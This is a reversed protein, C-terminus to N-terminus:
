TPQTKWRRHLWFWQEPYDRIYAELERTYRQTLRQIEAERPADADPWIPAGFRVLFRYSGRLRQAAGTIIPVGTRLALAAASGLTAAPRGFFAVFVPDTRQNQDMLMCLINGRHLLRLMERLAGKKQIIKQGRAERQDILYRDLLPNDLPRAVSHLPYGIHGAVAGAIEWNGLHGSVLIFGQGRRALAETEPHIRTRIHRPITAARLVQRLKVVEVALLGLHAFMRRALAAHFSAGEQPFARAIHERTLRRHRGDLAWGVLGLSRGLGLAPELPLCEIVRAASRVALYQLLWILRRTTGVTRARSM